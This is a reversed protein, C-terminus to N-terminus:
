RKSRPVAGPKLQPQAHDGVGARRNSPRGVVASESADHYLNLIETLSLIPRLWGSLDPAPFSIGVFDPTEPDSHASNRDAVILMACIRDRPPEHTPDFLNKQNPKIWENYSTYVKRFNTKRPTGLNKLPAARLLDIFNARIVSYKGGPPFTKHAKGSLGSCNAANRFEHELNLHRFQGRAQTRDQPDYSMAQDHATKFARDVGVWLNEILAQPVTALFPTLPDIRLM